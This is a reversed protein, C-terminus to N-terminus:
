NLLTQTRPDTSGVRAHEPPFTTTIGRIPNSFFEEHLRLLFDVQNKVMRANMLSCYADSLGSASSRKVGPGCPDLVHGFALDEM